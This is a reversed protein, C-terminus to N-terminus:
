NTKDRYSHTIDKGIQMLAAIDNVFIDSNETELTHQIVNMLAHLKILVDDIQENETNM